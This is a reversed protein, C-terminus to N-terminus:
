EKKQDAHQQKKQVIEDNQVKTDALDKELKVQAEMAIAELNIVQEDQGDSVMNVDPVPTMTANSKDKSTSMASSLLFARGM